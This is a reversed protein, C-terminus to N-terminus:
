PPPLQGWGQRGTPVSVYTIDANPHLGFAQPSDLTPLNAIFLRIEELKKM